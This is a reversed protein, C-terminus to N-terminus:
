FPSRFGVRLNSMSLSFTRFKKKGRGSPPPTVGPPRAPPRASTLDAAVSPPAAAHRAAGGPARRSCGPSSRFGGGPLAPRAGPRRSRKIAELLAATSGGRRALAAHLCAADYHVEDGGAGLAVAEAIDAVGRRLYATQEAPGSAGGARTPAAHALQLFVLARNHFVASLGRDAAAARDLAARAECLEGVTLLSCGLNNLVAAPAFGAAVADRYSRIAERHLGLRNQCYGMCAAPGGTRHPATPVTTTPSRARPERPGRARDARRPGAFLAATLGPDAHLADTFQEVAQLSNSRRCASLGDHLRRLPYPPQSAWLLGAALAATASCRHPPGQLALARHCAVWRVM